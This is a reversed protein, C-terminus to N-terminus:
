PCRRDTHGSRGSPDRWDREVVSCNTSLGELVEALGADQRTADRGERTSRPFRRSESSATEDGQDRGVDRKVGM